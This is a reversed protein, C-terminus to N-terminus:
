SWYFRGGRYRGGMKFLMRGVMIQSLKMSWGKKRLAMIKTRVRQRSGSNLAANTLALATSSKIGSRGVRRALRYPRRAAPVKPYPTYYRIRKSPRGYM